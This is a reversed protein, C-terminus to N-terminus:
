PPPPTATPRETPTPEVTPPDPQPPEPTPPPPTPPLPTPTLTPPIRTPPITPTVPTNTPQPTHTPRTTATATAAAPTNTPETTHTPALTATPTPVYPSLGAYLEYRAADPEAPSGAGGVFSHQGAQLSLEGDLDGAIRCAGQLCDVDFRFPQRTHAVGLLGNSTQASAGFPNFITFLRNTARAVLEGERLTIALGHNGEGEEVRQIEVASNRNLFLEAGDPLSLAMLASGTLLVGREGVQFLALTGDEPLPATQDNIQWAADQAASAVTLTLPVPSPPTPEEQPGEGGQNRLWLILAGALGIFLLLTVGLLIPRPPWPFVATERVPGGAGPVIREMIPRSSPLFRDPEAVDSVQQGAGAPRVRPTEEVVIQNVPLAQDRAAAPASSAQLAKVFDIVTAYRDAPNKALAKALAPSLSPPLDPNVRHVAPAATHVHKYMVQLTDGSFLLKGTLAEFIVVALSYQDSRGDLAQGTFQEPSMYAPTGILRDGTLQTTADIVKAIGFDSVFPAGQENFLINTPKVDRHIVNQAHAADLALAVQAMIEWLQRQDLLGANIREQLTGGRLLRMVLFPRNEHMGVDLIPVIHAHELRAVVRAERLFRDVFTQQMQLHPSMLKVAVELGRVTDRARYVTGMGGRGIEELLEYQGITEMM